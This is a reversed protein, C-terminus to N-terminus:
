FTSGQIPTSEFGMRGGMLEVIRKSIALGLGTGSHKRTTTQDAQIFPEFIHSQAEPSIGIGTDRVAFRLTAHRENSKLVAVSATVAGREIYKVANDLLNLLVQHIQLPDGQM